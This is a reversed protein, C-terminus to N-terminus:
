GDHLVHEEVRHTLAHLEAHDDGVSSGFKLPALEHLPQQERPQAARVDIQMGERVHHGLDGLEEEAGRGHEQVARQHGAGARREDAHECM